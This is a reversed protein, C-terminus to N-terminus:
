EGEQKALIWQDLSEHMTAIHADLELRVSEDGDMVRAMEVLRDMADVAPGMPIWRQGHTESLYTWGVVTDMPSLYSRHGSALVWDGFVAMEGAAVSGYRDHVWFYFSAAVTGPSAKISM